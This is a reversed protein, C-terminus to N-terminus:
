WLFWNQTFIVFIALCFNATYHAVICSGINKQRYYVLNLLVGTILGVLWRNHAIGFFLTTIIFSTWSFTGQKVKEFDTKIFVRHLYNRVFLEEILPAILIMGAMKIIIDLTNEPVLYSSEGFLPYYGELGVWVMFIVIGAAVPYTYNTKWGINYSKWFYILLFGVFLIKIIYSLTTDKILIPIVLYAIFPLLHNWM